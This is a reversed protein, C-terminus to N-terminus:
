KEEKKIYDKKYIEMIEDTYTGDNNYIILPKEIKLFTGAGKIAKILICSISMNHIIQM